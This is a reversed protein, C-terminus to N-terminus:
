QFGGKHKLVVLTKNQLEELAAKEIEEDNLKNAKSLREAALLGARNNALDMAKDPDSDLDNAEHADLFKKALDASLEKRMEGAWVFHRFADSEDGQDNRRFKRETAKEAVRKAKFVSVAEKPYKKVLNKEESTLFPYYILTGLLKDILDHKKCFEDCRAPCDFTGMDTDLMACKMECDKGQEINARLFWNHCADQARAQPSFLALLPVFLIQLM